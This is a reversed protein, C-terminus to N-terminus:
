PASAPSIGRRAREVPVDDAHRVGTLMGHMLPSYRFASRTRWASPSSEPRLPAPSCAPLCAPEFEARGAVRCITWISRASTPQASPGSRKGAEQLRMPAEMSDALLITRSPWHIQYLDIYDTQLRRLSGECSTVIDDPALHSDIVKSAIVAEHRRGKLARGLVEESVGDGYMEATDFFNVGLELAAHVTAASDTEPQEGWMFDGAFGWTGLCITSVQIDTRGLRRYEM